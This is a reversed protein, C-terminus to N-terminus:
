DFAPILQGDDINALYGLVIPDINTFLRRVSGDGFTFQCLNAHYSGFKWGPDRVSQALPFFQGAARVACISAGNYISCDWGGHGFQDIPVHKEGALLTNSLGDKIQV